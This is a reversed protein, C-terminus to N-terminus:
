HSACSFGCDCACACIYHRTRVVDFSKQMDAALELEQSRPMKYFATKELWLNMQLIMLFANIDARPYHVLFINCVM